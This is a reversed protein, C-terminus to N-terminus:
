FYRIFRTMKPIEKYESFITSNIVTQSEGNFYIKDFIKSNINELGQFFSIEYRLDSMRKM